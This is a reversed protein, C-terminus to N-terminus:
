LKDIEEHTKDIANNHGYCYDEVCYDVEGDVDEIKKPVIEHMLTKITQKANGILIKRATDSYEQSDVNEIEDYHVYKELIKDLTKREKTM